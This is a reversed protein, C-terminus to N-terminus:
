NFDNRNIEQRLASAFQESEIIVINRNQRDFRVKTNLEKRSFQVHIGDSDLDIQIFRKLESNDPKFETNISINNREAFDMLYTEDSFFHESLDNINVNKTPLSSVYRYVEAKFEDRSIEVNNDNRPLRDVLNVLNLLNRTLIKNSERDSVSIWKIFYESIDNMKRKMFSLYKGNSTRYLELDIRCAMALKDLDLHETPNIVFTAMGRNKRFLMGITDRILYIGIYEKSNIEYQSFVLFGGKAPSITEVRDKLNRITNQSFLLFEDEDGSQIYSRFENPFVNPVSDDFFAYTIEARRYSSDLKQVLNTSLEDVALLNQSIDLIAQQENENKNLQHVIIRSVNM